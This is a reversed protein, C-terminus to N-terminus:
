RPRDEVAGVLATTLVTVRERIAAPLMPDLPAIERAVEGGVILYRIGTDPDRIINGNGALALREIDRVFAAQGSGAPLDEAENTVTM